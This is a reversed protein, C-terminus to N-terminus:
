ILIWSVCTTLVCRRLWNAIFAFLNASLSQIWNHDALRLISKNESKAQKKKLSVASAGVKERVETEKMVRDTDEQQKKNKEPSTQLTTDKMRPPIM